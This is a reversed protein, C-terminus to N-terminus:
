PDAVDGLLGADGVAQEVVVERRFVLHEVRDEPLRPAVQERLDVVDLRRGFGREFLQPADRRPEEAAPPYM